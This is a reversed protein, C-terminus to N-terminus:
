YVKEWQNVDVILEGVDVSPLWYNRITNYKYLVMGRANSFPKYQDKEMMQRYDCGLGIGVLTVTEGDVQVLPAGKSSMCGDNVDEEISFRLHSPEGRSKKWYVQGENIELTSHRFGRDYTTADLTKGQFRQTVQDSDKFKEFVVAQPAVELDGVKVKTLLNKGEEVQLFVIPLNKPAKFSSISYTLQKAIDSDLDILGGVYIKADYLPRLKGEDDQFCEKMAVVVRENAIIGDCINDVFGFYKSEIKDLIAVHYPYKGDQSVV